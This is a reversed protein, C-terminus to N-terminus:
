ESVALYQVKGSAIFQFTLICVPYSTFGPYTVMKSIIFWDDVFDFCLSKKNNRYLLGVKQGENWLKFTWQCSYEKQDLEDGFGWNVDRATTFSTTKGELKASGTADLDCHLFYLLCTEWYSFCISIWEQM